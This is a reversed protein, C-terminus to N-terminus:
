LNLVRKATQQMEQINEHDRFPIMTGIRVSCTANNQVPIEKNIAKLCEKILTSCQNNIVAEISYHTLKSVQHIHRFWADLGTNGVDLNDSLDLTTLQPWHVFSEALTTVGADSLSCEQLNFEMLGHCHQLHHSLSGIANGVKNDILDLAVLKPSKSLFISLREIHREELNARRLRLHQLHNTIIPGLLDISDGINVSDFDISTLSKNPSLHCLLIRTMDYDLLFIIILQSLKLRGVIDCLRTFSVNDCTSRNIIRVYMNLHTINPMNCLVDATVNSLFNVASGRYSIRLSKVMAGVAKGVKSQIFYRFVVMLDGSIDLRNSWINNTFLSTENFSESIQGEYFLTLVYDWKALYVPNTNGVQIRFESYQTDLRCMYGFKCIAYEVIAVAAGAVGDHMMHHSVGCCFRLLEFKKLVLEWSDIQHLINDFQERDTVFLHALYKAACFEQSSKHLFSVSIKERSRFRWRQKTIYGVRLGFNCCDGFSEEPFELVDENVNKSPMLGGLATKGLRLLFSEFQESESDSQSHDKRCSRTWITQVFEEYLLSMTDPFNQHDEWLTCMLMLIVPIRSISELNKSQHLKHILGSALDDIQNDHVTNDDAFPSGSFHRSIYLEANEDSFGNVNVLTYYLSQAHGLHRHPRTTVIVCSKCLLQNSLIQEVRLKGIGQTVRDPEIKLDSEDLADYLVIVKEENRIIYSELGNPVPEIIQNRITDILSCGQKLSRMRFLFLLEFQNLPSNNNQQSWDYALKSLLCTKGSGPTGRLIIRKSLKDKRTKLQVVDINRELLRNGCREQTDDLELEVYIDEMYRMEHCEENWPLLLIHGTEREYLDILQQKFSELDFESFLYCM